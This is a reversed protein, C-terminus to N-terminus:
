AALAAGIAAAFSTTPRGILGSLTRRLADLALRGLAGSAGAIAFM